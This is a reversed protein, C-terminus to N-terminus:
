LIDGCEMKRPLKHHGGKVVVRPGGVREQMEVLELVLYLDISMMAEKKTPRERGSELFGSIM